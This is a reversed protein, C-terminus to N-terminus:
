GRGDWGVEFGKRMETFKSHIGKRTGEGAQRHEGM